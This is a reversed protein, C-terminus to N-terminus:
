NSKFLLYNAADQITNVAERDFLDLDALGEVDDLKINGVGKFSVYCFGRQKYSLAEYHCGVPLSKGWSPMEPICCVCRVDDFRDIDEEIEVGIESFKLIPHKAYLNLDPLLAQPSISVGDSYKIKTSFDYDERVTITVPIKFIFMRTPTVMIDEFLDTLKIM